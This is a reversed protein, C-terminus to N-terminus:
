VVKKMENILKEEIIPKSIHANMGADLSKKEDQAYANATIGIIPINKLDSRDLERIKRTTELGDMVPMLIDMLIMDYENEKSSKIMQYATFGNKVLVTKMGHKKVIYDIVDLNIDNDDVILVKKNELSKSSTVEEKNKIEVNTSIPLVITFKSGENVKSEVEITGNMKDVLGKVISMGLGSGCYNNNARSNKGQIFPEYICNILTKDMGIGNDKIVFKFISNNDDVEKEDIDIQIKGYCDTFKVSNSLVNTLVQKLHIEDSNVYIHKINKNVIVKQNKSEAQYSIIAVIDEIMKDINLTDNEIVLKNKEIASVDLVDNILSFLHNSATTIKNLCELVKKKSTVNEEAIKAMGIIGNIPTRIDHSIKSLFETKANNAYREKKADNSLIRNTKEQLLFMAKFSKSLKITTAILIILSSIMITFLITLFELNSLGIISLYKTFKKYGNYFDEELFGLDTISFIGILILAICVIICIINHLKIKM